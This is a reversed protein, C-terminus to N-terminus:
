ALSQTKGVQPQSELFAQLESMGQLVKPEKLSDQGQGEILFFISSTGAFRANLATDDTRVESGELNYRKLSNDARLLLTGTFALAIFVLGAGLLWSARGGSLWDALRALSRDLVDARREREAERRKPARLYSRLVPILTMELIVASLIGSGAFIGFHRVVSIESGSLSYFTIVAILGATLMVPGIQALSEVVAARNLAATGTDPREAHLRHYEEYYRKLIQIAHGAAVAMILIPTTTNMGDMHIDFLGMLGLGWLVSLLATVIPLLMGQFSRFSWYQIGMIILLAVGFFLPMKAMHFEFWALAVPGGGLHITVSDDREADVVKRISEYLPTYRPDDKSLRFDAVIAAAKGDPSVLANLYIPSDAIAAKLRALEQPTQPVVDMMPRVEMGETTGRIHKVKRAAISLINHRVAGPIVEIGDQIHQIKALIKPQYIDGQKPVLGILTINRGTFIQEIVKTTKVYPHSQPMWIDPDMDIKLNTVRSVLFVTVGLIALLVWLRQRVILEAYRRMMHNAKRM